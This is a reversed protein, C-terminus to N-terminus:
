KLANWAAQVAAGREFKVGLSAFCDELIGAIALADYRDAYGMTSIRFVTDEHPAQGPLARQGMEALRAAVQKGGIGQPPTLVAVAASPRIASGITAAISASSPTRGAGDHAITASPSAPAATSAPQATNRM